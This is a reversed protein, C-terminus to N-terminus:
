TLSIKCAFTNENAHRTEMSIINGKGEHDDHNMSKSVKTKYKPKNLPFLKHYTLPIENGHLNNLCTGETM